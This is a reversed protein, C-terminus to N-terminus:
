LLRKMNIKHKKIFETLILEGRQQTPRDPSFYLINRCPLLLSLNLTIGSDRSVSCLISPGYLFIPPKYFLFWYLRILNNLFRFCCYILLYLPSLFLFGERHTPKKQAM